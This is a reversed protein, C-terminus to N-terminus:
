DLSRGQSCSKRHCRNGAVEELISLCGTCVDNQDVGSCGNPICEDGRSYTGEPCGVNVAGGVKCVGDPPSTLDRCTFCFGSLTDWTRCNPDAEHCGTSDKYQTLGCQHALISYAAHKNGSAPSSSHVCGKFVQHVDVFNRPFPCPYPDTQFQVTYMYSTDSDRYGAM